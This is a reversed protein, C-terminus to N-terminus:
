TQEGRDGPKQQRLGLTGDGHHWLGRRCRDASVVAATYMEVVAGGGCAMLHSGRHRLMM